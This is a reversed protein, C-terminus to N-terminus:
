SHEDARYEPGRNKPFRFRTKVYRGLDHDFTTASWTGDEAIVIKAARWVERFGGVVPLADILAQLIARRDGQAGPLVIIGPNRHPPFARDDLFDPDHTLLIRDERQAHALINEDPQGDLGIDRVHQVNWGSRRLLDIVAIDVNQDLLFRAKKKSERLFATRESKSSKPIQKWPM